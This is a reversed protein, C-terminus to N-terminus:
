QQYENADAQLEVYQLFAADLGKMSIFDGAVKNFVLIEALNTQLDNTQEQMGKIKDGTENIEQLMDTMLQLLEGTYKKPLSGTKDCKAALTMLRDYLEM